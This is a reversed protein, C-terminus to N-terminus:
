IAGVENSSSLPMDERWCETVYLHRLWLASFIVFMWMRFDILQKM